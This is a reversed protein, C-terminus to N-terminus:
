VERVEVWVERLYFDEPKSSRADEYKMKKEFVWGIARAGGSILDVYIKGTCRGFEQQLDSFLEKRDDANAEYWESDGFRYNNTRNVYSEKVMLTTM